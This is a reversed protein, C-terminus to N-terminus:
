FDLAFKLHNISKNNALNFSQLFTVATMKALLRTTLGSVSKAYNRKLMFQDCLQSFLTEIRKRVKRFIPTFPKFGKQNSRQPTKLEIKCSTFLDVQHTASLYGRDGILTCNNLKSYKVDELFRIAHVSAKTINMSHFIGRVSTVVHMKYGYFYSQNVASFGKDPATEFQEKCVKSRKERAIKCVPIPISDVIFINEAENMKKALRENVLAMLPALLKRRRNYNCRNILPPFDRQYETQLKKWFYNESDIGLSEATLSLAIITADSLKPVHRYFKCNENYQFLDPCHTLISEFFKRFNTTLNHMTRHTKTRVRVM